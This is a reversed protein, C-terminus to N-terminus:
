DCWINGCSNFNPKPLTWSDAGFCFWDCEGVNEVDWSSLDQNFNIADNFMYRMDTVSSVDWNSIDQNFDSLFFVNFMGTVNSVDWGTIDSTFSAASFLQDISSVNSLDWSSIDDDFTVNAFGGSMSTIFTTVVKSLDITDSITCNTPDDNPCIRYMSTLDAWNINEWIQYLEGNWQFENGYALGSISPDFGAWSYAKLTYGNDDLYIPQPDPSTISIENGYYTGNFLTSAVSVYSRVNYIDTYWVSGENAGYPILNSITTTFNDNDVIYTDIINASEWEGTYLVFGKGGSNIVIDPCIELDGSITVSFENLEANYEISSADYTSLVPEVCPIDNNINDDSEDDASDSSCAFLGLVLFLYLLKKM